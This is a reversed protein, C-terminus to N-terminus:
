INQGDFEELYQRVKDTFQVGYMGDIIRHDYSLGLYMMSRIALTDNGNEDSKVVVRKVIAGTTMIAVQPQNIIPTGFLNGYIGPNTLTFTGGSIDDPTLKKSRARAALDALAKALGVLNLEDAHKIVPVILAPPLPSGEIQPLSVACGFNIEKKVIIDTGDVSSNIIPFDRIARVMAQIFIPTYTLNVGERQKFADKNKNRFNVINTVDVETVSSVHASTHKSRVMHEAIKQRINDMPITTYLGQAPLAYRLPAPATTPQTSRVPAAAPSTKRKEVYALIDTKNVRGELGSGQIADLESEAIGEAKAISRVLPSYFRDGSGRSVPASPQTAVEPTAQAAPASPLAPAPTSTPAPQAVDAVPAVGGTSGGGDGTEVYGLTAGVAVTQKEQAVIKTLVGAFPSPVETDVKDTSIELIPEDKKVTDGEKKLWRLVTGESISEGMKPMVVAQGGGSAPKATPAAAPKSQPQPVPAPQPTAVTEPAKAPAGSTPVPPPVSAASPTPATAGASEGETGISALPTGVTVTEKEQVLVKLLTGSVTSPVETDVKDTSIELIPEDKQVKDGEKKLWRLVTGETISEGMKPMVVNTAMDKQHLPRLRLKQIYALIKSALQFQLCCSFRNLARGRGVGLHIGQCAILQNDIELDVIRTNKVYAFRIIL